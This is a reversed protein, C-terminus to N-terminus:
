KTYKEDTLIITWNEDAMTLVVEENLKLKDEGYYKVVQKNSFCIKDLYYSCKSYISENDERRSVIAATKYFKPTETSTNVLVYYSETYSRKEFFSGIQTNGICDFMGVISILVVIQTLIFFWLKGAIAVSKTEEKIYTKFDKFKYPHGVAYLFLTLYGIEALGFVELALYFLKFIYQM